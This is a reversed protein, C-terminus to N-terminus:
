KQGIGSLATKIIITNAMNKDDAVMYKVIVKDGVKVDALTKKEKGMMVRTEDDASLALEGKNGKVILTMAATDVTAVEGTIQKKAQKKEASAPSEKEEASPSKPCPLQKGTKADFCAIPTGDIGYLTVIKSYVPKIYPSAIVLGILMAIVVWRTKM